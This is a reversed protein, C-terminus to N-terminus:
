LYGGSGYGFIGAGGGGSDLSVVTASDRKIWAEITFNQVQLSASNNLQVGDGNGDFANGVLDTVSPLVRLRYNGNGLGSGLVVLQLM